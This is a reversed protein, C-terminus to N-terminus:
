NHKRKVGCVHDSSITTAYFVIALVNKGFRGRYKISFSCCVHKYHCSPLLIKMQKFVVTFFQLIYM